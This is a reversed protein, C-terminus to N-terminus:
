VCLGDTTVGRLCLTRRTAGGVQWPVTVEYLAGAVSDDCFQRLEVYFPGDGSGSEPFSRVLSACEGGGDDGLLLEALAADPEAATEWQPELARIEDTVDEAVAGPIAWRPSEGWEGAAAAPGVIPLTLMGGTEADILSSPTQIGTLVLYDGRDVLDRIETPGNPVVFERRNTGDANSIILRQNLQRVDDVDRTVWALRLGDASITLGLPAAPDDSYSLQLGLPEVDIPQLNGDLDVSWPEVTAESGWIGALIGGGYTLNVGAEWGGVDTIKHREGSDLDSPTCSTSNRSSDPM